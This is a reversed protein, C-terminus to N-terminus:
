SFIKIRVNLYTKGKLFFNTAKTFVLQVWSEAPQVGRIIAELKRSPSSMTSRRKLLSASAVIFLVGIENEDIMCCVFDSSALFKMIWQM